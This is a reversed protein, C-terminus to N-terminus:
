SHSEQLAKVASRLHEPTALCATQLTSDIRGVLGGLVRGPGCECVHDAKHDPALRRITDAWRVPRYLQEALAARLAPIDERAVGDVNQLVPVQPMAVEISDLMEALREAAPRMLPTHSPVSVSLKVARRAGAQKLADIAADVARAHGAIVVQGPANYNAAAVFAEPTSVGACVQEVVDDELGLVAAMSGAGAPVAEQMFRGRSQVLRVADAFALAGGAVLASYEGLSHGAMVVPAPGGEVAWARHITISAVLLAPQTYETQDLLGEPDSAILDALDYGLVESAEAVTDRACLYDALFGDLMGVAQSGQGPFVFALSM